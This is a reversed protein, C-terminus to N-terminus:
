GDFDVARYVWFHEDALVGDAFAAIPQLRFEDEVEVDIPTDSIVLVPKDSGEDLRQVIEALPERRDTRDEDWVIFRGFRGGAPYYVSKDLYAAVTSASVDSRGVIIADDLGRDDILTAVDRGNSFPYRLDVALVFLGAVLQLVLV